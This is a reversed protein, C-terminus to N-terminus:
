EQPQAESRPPMNPEPGEPPLPRGDGPKNPRFGPGRGPRGGQPAMLQMVQKLIGDFKHRQTPNCLARVQKFHNFTQLSLQQELHGIMAASSDVQAESATSDNMLGFLHDKADHLQEHLAMTNRKHAEILQQYQQQQQANFNLQQTVYSAANGLKDTPRAHRGTTLKFYWFFALTGINAVFLLVIIVQWTKNKTLTDM